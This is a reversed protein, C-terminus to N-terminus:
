DLLELIVLRCVKFFGQKIKEIDMLLKSFTDHIYMNQTKSKENRFQKRKWEYQELQAWEDMSVM